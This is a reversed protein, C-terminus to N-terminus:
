RMKQENRCNFCVGNCQATSSSWGCRTCNSIFCPALGCSTDLDPSVGSVMACWNRKSLMARNILEYLYWVLTLMSSCCSAVSLRICSISLSLKLENLCLSMLWSEIDHSSLEDAVILKCDFEFLELWCCFQVNSKVNIRQANIPNPM